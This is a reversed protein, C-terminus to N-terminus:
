NSNKQSSLFIKLHSILIPKITYYYKLFITSEDFDIKNKKIENNMEDDISDKSNNLEDGKNKYMTNFKNISSEIETMLTKNLLNKDNNTILPPLNIKKEKLYNKNKYTRPYFTNIFAKRHQINHHIKLLKNNPLSKAIKSDIKIKRSTDILSTNEEIKSNNKSLFNKLYIQSINDISLLKSM